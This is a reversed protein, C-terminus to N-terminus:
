FIFNILVLAIADGLFNVHFEILSRLVVWGTSINEYLEKKDNQETIQNEDIQVLIM